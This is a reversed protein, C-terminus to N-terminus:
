KNELVIKETINLNDSIIKLYYMGASQNSLDITEILEGNLLEYQDSYIIQGNVTYIIISLEDDPYNRIDFNLLGNSPNPYLKVQTAITIDNVTSFLVVTIEGTETCGNDDTVIVTWDGWPLSTAVATTQALADNWLYDYPPTGGTVGVTATGDAIGSDTTSILALSLLDPEEIDISEELTCGTTIDTITVSYLGDCLNSITPTTESNSWWYSYTGSGASALITADGNCDGNCLPNTGSISGDMEYPLITFNDIYECGNIDTVTYNYNGSCLSLFDGTAQTGTGIDYDFAGTGGAATITATGDCAGYCTEHTLIHTALLEDPETITVNTISSCLNDDILTVSHVGACLDDAFPGTDSNSWTYTYPTTGGTASVTADGTCAGYCLVNTQDDLSITPTGIESIPVTITNTCSNDDSVILIYAGAILASIDDTSSSFSPGTWSYYLTGTGGSSTIDISGDAGGCTSVDTHSETIDISLPNDIVFPTSTESCTNIDTVTVTVTYTGATLGSFNGTGQSGAGIDFSLAGTGGSATVTITGDNDNHCTIDTYAESDISIATPQNIVDGGSITCTNIDTVTVTYSGAIVGVLDQTVDSNSWAYILPLTAGTVTIDIAGTMDGNCLLVDTVNFSLVPSTVSYIVEAINTCIGNDVEDYFIQGDSATASSPSVVPSTLSPDNYWTHVYANGDDITSELLTLNIGSHTGSGPIDECLAAPYQDIAAVGSWTWGANNGLDVSNDGAYFTQPGVSIDQINMYDSCFEHSTQNIFAQAGYTHIHVLDGANGTAQFDTTTQTTGEEFIVEAGPNITLINFTNSGHLEVGGWTPNLITVKNYVMDGGDFLWSNLSTSIESTGANLVLNTNDQIEWSSVSIISSGLNLTRISTSNSIFSANTIDLDFNNTNLTGNNFTIGAWELNLNDLLTYAGSGSFIIGSITQGASTLTNGIDNSNFNLTGSYNFFMTPVLTLSGNIYLQSWGQTEPNNTVDTWDMNKCYANTNINVIQAPSSFSNSEFYVNDESTPICGYSPGGPILSWHLPDNWDGGDGIWYLDVSAPSTINWGTVDGVGQSNTANFTGGGGATLDTIILWNGNFIGAPMSLNAISGSTTAGISFYTNCDSGSPITLNNFTHTKESEFKISLTSINLNNFGNGGYIEVNGTNSINVDNYTQDGGYFTATSTNITSTMPTIVLNTGSTCYWYDATILSNGLNLNRIEESMSAFFRSTLNYNNTILSGKNFYISNGNAVSAILNNQLTWEGTGDFYVNGYITKGAFDINNGINNSKFYINGTYNIIMTANYTLSGNINLVSSGSIRVNAAGTWDMNNCFAIQDITVTQFSLGSNGDFYVNDVQTPLCGSPNAV